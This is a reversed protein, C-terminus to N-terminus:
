SAASRETNGANHQVTATRDGALTARVSTARYATSAFQIGLTAAIALTMVLSIIANIM